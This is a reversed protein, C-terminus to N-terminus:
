SGKSPPLISRKEQLLSVFIVHDDNKARAHERQKASSTRTRFDDDLVRLYLLLLNNAQRCSLTDYTHRGDEMECGAGRGAAFVATMPRSLFIDTMLGWLVCVVVSSLVEEEREPEIELSTHVLYTCGGIGVM